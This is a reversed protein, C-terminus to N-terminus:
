LNLGFRIAERKVKGFRRGVLFTRVARAGVVINSWGRKERGGGFGSKDCEEQM